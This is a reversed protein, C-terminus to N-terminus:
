EWVASNIVSLCCQEGCPISTCLSVWTCSAKHGYHWSQSTLHCGMTHLHLFPFLLAIQATHTHLLRKDTSTPVASKHESAFTSILKETTLILGRQRTQIEMLILEGPMFLPPRFHHVSHAEGWVFCSKNLKLRFELQLLKFAHQFVRHSGAPM